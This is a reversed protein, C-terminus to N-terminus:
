SDATRLLDRGKAVITGNLVIDGEVDGGVAVYALYAGLTGVNIAWNKGMVTALMGAAFGDPLVGGPRVIVLKWWSGTQSALAIAKTDHLGQRVHNARDDVIKSGVM